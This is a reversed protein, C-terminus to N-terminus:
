LRNQSWDEQLAIIRARLGDVREAHRNPGAQLRRVSRRVPELRGSMRDDWAIEQVHSQTSAVAVRPVETRSPSSRTTAGNVPARRTTAVETHATPGDTRSSQVLMAAVFMAAAVGAVAAAAAAVRSWSIRLLHRANRARVAEVLAADDTLSPAGAELLDGFALWTERLGAAEDSELRATPGRPATIHGLDRELDEFGLREDAADRHADSM